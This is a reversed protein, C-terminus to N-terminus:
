IENAYHYLLSNELMRIFKSTRVITVTFFVTKQSTVDYLGEYIIASYTENNNTQHRWIHDTNINRKQAWLPLPISVM